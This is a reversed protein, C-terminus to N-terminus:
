ERRRMFDCRELLASFRPDTRYADWKPDVILFMLHVDHAALATELSALMAKRDGLGAQVLAIAYGPVYRERSRAILGELV